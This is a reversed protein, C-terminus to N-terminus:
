GIHEVAMPLHAAMLAVAIIFTSGYVAAPPLIM